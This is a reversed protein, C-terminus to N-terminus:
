PPPGQGPYPSVTGELLPVLQQSCLEGSLQECAQSGLHTPDLYHRSEAYGRDESSYHLAVGPLEALGQVYALYAEHVGDEYYRRYTKHVPMDVLLLQVGRDLAWELIELMGEHGRGYGVDYNSLRRDAQSQAQRVMGEGWESPFASEIALNNRECRQSGYCFQGGDHHVMMWRLHAELEHRGSLYLALSEVPRALPYLAAFVQEPDDAALLAPPIEWPDGLQAVQDGAHHNSTRVFEPSVGVVLIRPPRAAAFLDNVLRATNTSEMSSRAINVTRTPRGIREQLCSDILQPSLAFSVRSTGLIAVDVPAEDALLQFSHIDTPWIVPQVYKLHAWAVVGYCLLCCLLVSGIVALGRRTVAQSPGDSM